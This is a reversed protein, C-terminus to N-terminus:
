FSLNEDKKQVSLLELIQAAHCLKKGTQCNVQVEYM